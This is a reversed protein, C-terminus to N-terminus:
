SSKEVLRLRGLGLLAGAGEYVIELIGAAIYPEYEADELLGVFIGDLEHAYWGTQEKLKDM